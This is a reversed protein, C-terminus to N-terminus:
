LPFLGKCPRLPGPITERPNAYKIGLFQICVICLGGFGRGHVWRFDRLCQPDDCFDLRGM